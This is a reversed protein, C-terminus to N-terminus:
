KTSTYNEGFDWVPFGEAEESIRNGTKCRQSSSAQEGIHHREARPNKRKRV